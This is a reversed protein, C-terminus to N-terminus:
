SAVGWAEGRAMDIAQEAANAADVLTAAGQSALTRTGRHWDSVQVVWRRDAPVVESYSVAVTREGTSGLWIAAIWDRSVPELALGLVVLGIGARHLELPDLGTM